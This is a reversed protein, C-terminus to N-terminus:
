VKPLVTLITRFSDAFETGVDGVTLMEGMREMAQRICQM